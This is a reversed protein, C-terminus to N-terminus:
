LAPRAKTFSRLLDSLQEIRFPKYLIEVIGADDLAARDLSAEWGTMLVVPVGPKQRRLMRAVELGSLGPMALDVLILAYDHEGALRLGVEGSRAPDVSYGITQCMASVLDLIVAQDDIVLIRPRADTVQEAGSNEPTRSKPFRFSLFIPSPNQRDAAYWVEGGVIPALMTQAFTDSRADTVHRYSGFGAVPEVPPFYRRHRSFDLYVHSQDNYLSITIVEDDAAASAFGDIATGVLSQLLSASTTIPDAPQFRTHIERPRGAVMYLDGSIHSRSLTRRIEEALNQGDPQPLAMTEIKPTSEPLSTSRGPRRQDLAGRFSYLACALTLLRAYEERSRETVSNAFVLVVSLEAANRLPCIAVFARDLAPGILRTLAQRNGPQFQELWRSLESRGMLVLCPRGAAISGIEGEQPNIVMDAVASEDIHFPQSVRWRNDQGPTLVAFGTGSPFAPELERVFWEATVRHDITEPNLLRMIREFGTRQSLSHRRTEVYDLALGALRALLELTHLSPDTIAMGGAERRFLVAESAHHGGLSLALTAALVRDRGSEDTTEQNILLPKRRDIAEILATQYSDSLEGLSASHSLFELRGSRISCLHVGTCDFLGVLSRCFAGLPDPADLSAVAGGVRDHLAQLQTTLRDRDSRITAVERTLRTARIREALWETVPTLVRADQRDFRKPIDSFLLLGGIQEMGAILPLVIVSQFRSPRTSGDPAVFDFGPAILPEAMGVAQSVLNRELPYHELAAIEDKALGLSATLVFQRRTRNTLFIAGCCQPLHSLMERLSIDLLELLQYPQRADHQLNELMSLMEERRLLKLREDHWHRDHRVIGLGCLFVGLAAALAQFITAFLYASPVFWDGYSPNLTIIQWVLSCIVLILGFLFSALGRRNRLGFFDLRVSLYTATALTGTLLLIVALRAAM